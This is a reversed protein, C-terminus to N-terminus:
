RPYKRGQQGGQLMEIFAMVHEHDFLLMHGARYPLPRLLGTKKIHYRLAIISRPVGAKRCLAAVERLTMGRM